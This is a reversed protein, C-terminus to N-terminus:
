PEKPEIFSILQLGWSICVLVYCVAANMPDIQRHPPLLCVYLIIILDPVADTQGNLFQKIHNLLFFFALDDVDRM